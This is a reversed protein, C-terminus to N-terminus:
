IILEMVGENTLWKDQTHSKHCTYKVLWKCDKYAIIVMTTHGNCIHCRKRSNIKVSHELLRILIQFM